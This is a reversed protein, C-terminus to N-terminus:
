AGRKRIIIPLLLAIVVSFSYWGVVLVESAGYPFLEVNPGSLRSGLYEGYWFPQHTLMGYTGLVYWLATIGYFLKVIGRYKQAILARTLASIALAMLGILMVMLSATVPRACDWCENVSLDMKKKRSTGLAAHL